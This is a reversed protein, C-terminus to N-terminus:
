KYNRKKSTGGIGPNLSNTPDLRKWREQTEPPAAYETGHGHEAPLAIGYNHGLDHKIQKKVHDLDTGKEFVLDEHVVNCGFHIYRLRLLPNIDKPLEPIRFDNKRMAYDLSLGLQSKGVHYTKFAAAAVFRFDMASQAESSDCRHAAITGPPQSSIFENLRRVQRELQEDDDYNGFEVIVNHDFEKGIKHLTNPLQKPFLQGAWYLLHDSSGTPVFPLSEFWSKLKWFKSVMTIGAIRLLFIIVSGSSDIVDFTERNMYECSGPLDKSNVLVVSNKLECAQEFSKCGIWYITRNKPIVFTDHITALIFTKGESRAVESNGSVDANFRSISEDLTTVKVPYSDDSAKLKCNEDIEELKILGNKELREMLKESDKEKFGLTDCLIANGNEDIKLYLARETYSPGKRLQTGGSGLSVGASVTPNLFLSGLISHPSRNFEKLRNQLDFIGAGAFCLVQEAKEGVPIIKRLDETSIVVFPRDAGDRPVSGGTLGTNRGQSLIAVDNQACLEFVSKAQILTQPKIVAAATGKGM